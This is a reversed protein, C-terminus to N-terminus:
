SRTEFAQIKEEPDALLTWTECDYLFISTVLSKCLKFKSAFSFANCRWIRNLRAMVKMAPAIRVLVETACTGNKCLTARPYKLSTTEELKRGNMSIDASINNTSNTLIKSKETSVEMGYAIARQVLRNTLDQFEGNSGGMLDIDDSFRLNCIPQGGISISTNHDHFTGVMIKELFM